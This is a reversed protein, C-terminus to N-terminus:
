EHSSDEPMEIETGEPLRLSVGLTVARLSIDTVVRLADPDTIEVTMTGDPAVVAVGILHKYEFNWFLPIQKGEVKKLAGPLIIEDSM